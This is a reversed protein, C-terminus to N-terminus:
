SIYICTVMYHHSPFIQFFWNIFIFFHCLLNYNVQLHLFDVFSNSLLLPLQRHIRLFMKKLQNHLNLVVFFEFVVNKQRSIQLCFWLSHMWSVKIKHIRDRCAGMIMQPHGPVVLNIHWEFLCRM